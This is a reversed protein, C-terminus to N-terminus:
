SHSSWGPASASTSCGPSQASLVFGPAGNRAFLESVTEGHRLTDSREELLEAVSVAHDGPREWPWNDRGTLVAAVMLVATATAVSLLRVTRSM